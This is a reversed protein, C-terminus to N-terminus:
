FEEMVEKFDNQITTISYNESMTFIPPRYSHKSRPDHDPIKFVNTANSHKM